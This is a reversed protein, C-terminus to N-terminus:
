LAVHQAPRHEARTRNGGRAPQARGARAQGSAGQVRGSVPPSNAERGYWGGPTSPNTLLGEVELPFGLSPRGSSSFLGSERLHRAPSKVFYAKRLTPATECRKATVPGM